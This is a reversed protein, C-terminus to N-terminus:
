VLTTAAPVRAFLLPRWAGLATAHAHTERAIVVSLAECRTAQTADDDDGGHHRDARSGCGHSVVVSSPTM